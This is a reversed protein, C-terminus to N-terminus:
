PSTVLIDVDGAVYQHKGSEWDDSLQLTVMRDTGPVQFIATCGLSYEEPSVSAAFINRVEVQTGPPVCGPVVVWVDSEIVQARFQRVDGPPVKFVLGDAEANLSQAIWKAANVLGHAFEGLSKRTIASNV